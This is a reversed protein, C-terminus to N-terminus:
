NSVLNRMNGREHKLRERLETNLSGRAALDGSLFGVPLYDLKFEDSQNIVHELVQDLLSRGAPPAGRVPDCSYVDLTPSMLVEKARTQVFTKFHKQYPFIWAQVSLPIALTGTSAIQAADRTQLLSEVAQRVSLMSYLLVSFQRSSPVQVLEEAFGMYPARLDYTRGLLDIYEDDFSAESTEFPVVTPPWRRVVGGGPRGFHRVTGVAPTPASQPGAPSGDPSPSGSTHDATRNALQRPLPPPYPNGRHNRLQATNSRPVRTAQSVQAPPSQTDNDSQSTTSM